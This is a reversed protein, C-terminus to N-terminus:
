KIRFTNIDKLVISIRKFHVALMVLGFVAMSIIMAIYKHIGCECLLNNILSSFIWMVAITIILTMIEKINFVERWGANLLKISDNLIVFTYIGSVLLTAVAPGILGFLKYFAINLVLNLILSLVSYYMLRKTKGASTLILHMSAFRLMSDFIYIIFIGFGEIYKDAYLFSIMTKPAILVMTGLIWVSYYGVRLYSSFLMVSREKNKETFYKVIYPILVVAFSTVLFDFPLIKSCNSYIALNETGSLRGVVLKDMERSFASTIAYVGMPLGYSLIPKIKNISVKFVNICIGKKKMMIYFFLLQMLELAVLVVYIWLLDHFVYVAMYTFIIKIVTTIISLFSMIKARGVSVCLVNYFYIINSLMPLVAAMPLLRKIEHNGFYEVFVGSGFVIMVLYIVGVLTEIFFITNITRFREDESTELSNNNYFFNLADGLGLLILSTGVSTIINVQSYTGYEGLSLGTSLIKASLISFLLTLVKSAALFASDWSAGKISIKKM